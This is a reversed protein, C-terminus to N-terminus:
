FRVRVGLQVQRADNVTSTIQGATPLPAEGEHVGAFVVRNPISFNARNLANFVEIRLEITGGDGLLTWRNTKILSLDVNIFGPGTLMNRGANGLFGRPQLVFMNPDFYQDLSGLIIDEPQVGPRLSPRDEASTAVNGSRSWNVGPQISPSFPVGSRLVGLGNIRWGGAFARALGTAREAFPLECTFNMAFVHRVDFDAPGRDNKPDIPDQPFVSSNTADAGVYGQTEDITRALTYSVQWGHRRSFRKMASLHLGRYWSRGGTTRLDISGWNPNRRRADPPFFSTGGPVIQPIVPNGEIAQVLNYGRSGVYAAMLLLNPLVQRQVNVNGALMRPQRVEFSLARAAPEAIASELSPRPFTPNALNVPIAFPPSFSAPLLASNFPADTDYYLGVGGRISTRGTGSVDWAFGVRPALNKFSPNKFIPGVTFAADTLVNRLASDRGNRDNPVTYFEYRAGLNLTLRAHTTVDDQLYLGLTTSRRSRALEAGPLVGTFRSPNAALFQQVNAFTFRGRVNTSIETDTKAREILVGTKLSHRGKSYAVDNSFTFFEVNQRQPNTRDPGLLERIGGIAINGITSQGPVFALEPDIGVDASLAGLRVRSYSFRATNLVATRLMRKEEITLWQNRSKQESWFRPLSTPLSRTADDLTYRVFLTGANSFSHDVRLNVLTERTARDFPFTFAALGGGLEPGNPLPFLDLYARVFPDIPSLEGARAALSPVETVHTLGLHEILWETGGFFFTKDKRLPG